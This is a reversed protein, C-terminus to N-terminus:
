FKYSVNTYFIFATQYLPQEIRSFIKLKGSFNFKSYQKSLYLGTEAGRIGGYSLPVGINLNKRKNLKYVPMIEFKPVSYNFPYMYFNGHLGITEYETQLFVLSLKVPLLFSLSISDNITRSLSIISDTYGTFISDFETLEGLYFGEISVPADHAFTYSKGQQQFVGLNEISFHILHKKLINNNNIYHLEIGGGVSQLYNSLPFGYYFQGNLSYSINSTDPATYFSGERINIRFSPEHFSVFPAVAIRHANNKGFNRVIGMFLKDFSYYSFRTKSLDASYDLTFENGFMLLQFADKSFSSFMITNKKYGGFLRSYNQLDNLTASSFLFSLGYDTNYYLNNYRELKNLVCIKDQNSIHGSSFYNVVNNISFNDSIVSVDYHPSVHFFTDNEHYLLSSYQAYVPQICIRFLFTIVILINKIDPLISHSFRCHIFHEFNQKKQVFSFFQIAHFNNLVSSTHFINKM